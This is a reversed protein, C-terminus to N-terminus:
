DLKMFYSGYEWPVRYRPADDDDEDPQVFTKDYEQKVADYRAALNKDIYLDGKFQVVDKKEGAAVPLVFIKVCPEFEIKTVRYEKSDDRKAGFLEGSDADCILCGYIDMGLGRCFVAAETLSCFREGFLEKIM